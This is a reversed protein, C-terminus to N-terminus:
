LEVVDVALVHRARLEVELALLLHALEEGPARLHQVVGELDRGLAVVLEVPGVHVQGLERPKALPLGRLLAEALLAQIAQGALVARVPLGAGDVAEGDLLAELVLVLDDNVLAERVVEEDHLLVHAPGLLVAYAHAGASARRGTGDHGIGHVDCGEVRELVAEHELAEEGRLTGLHGIDVHVEVILPAELDDLVDTLDVARLAHAVDDGVGGDLGLLGYVVGGAHQAKGDVLALAQGLHEGVVGLEGQAVGQGLLLALLVLERGVEGLGIGLVRVGLAYDVRRERELAQVAALAHVGTRDEDGGRGHVVVHGGLDVGLATHLDGLELAVRHCVHAQELHVEQAQAGQRDDGLGQGVDALGVGVRFVNGLHGLGHPAADLGTGGAHVYVHVLDGEVVGLDELEHALAARCADELDLRAAHRGGDLAHARALVLLHHGKDGEIARARQARAHDRVVDIAHVAAFRNGEVVIPERVDQVLGVAGHDVLLLDHLDGHLHAAEGCALRVGADALRHCLLLYLHEGVLDEVPLVALVLGDVVVPHVAGHCVVVLALGSLLDPVVHQLEGGVGEVLGVRGAIGDEDHLRGPELGVEGALVHGRDERAVHALGVLDDVVHGGALVLADLDQRGVDVLGALVERGRWGADAEAKRADAAHALAHALRDHGLALLAPGELGQVVEHVAHVCALGVTAHDLGEDLGTGEVGRAVGALLEHVEDVLVVGLVDDVRRCLALPGAGRSLDAHEVEKAVHRAGAELVGHGGRVADLPVTADLQGLLVLHQAEVDGVVRQPGVLVREGLRAVVRDGLDLLGLLIARGVAADLLAELHGLALADVQRAHDRGHLLLGGLVAVGHGDDRELVHLSLGGKHDEGLEVLLARACELRAHVLLRPLGRSVDEDAHLALQLAAVAAVLDDARVDLAHVQVVLGVARAHHLYVDRCALERAGAHLVQHPDERAIRAQVAHLQAHATGVAVRHAHLQCVLDVGM